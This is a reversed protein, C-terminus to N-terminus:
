FASKGVDSKIRNLLKIKLNFRNGYRNRNCNVLNNYLLKPATLVAVQTM